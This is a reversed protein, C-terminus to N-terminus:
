VAAECIMRMRAIRRALEPDMDAHCSLIEDCLIQVRAEDIPIKKPPKRRPMTPTANTRRVRGIEIKVGEVNLRAKTRIERVIMNKKFNMDHLVAQSDVSIHLVGDSYGSPASRLALADGVIRWWEREITALVMCLRAVPSATGVLTYIPRESNSTRPM